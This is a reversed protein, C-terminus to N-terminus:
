AIIDSRPDVRTCTWATGPTAGPEFRVPCANDVPAEAAAIGLTHCLVRFTGSHAVVLPLGSIPIRELGALTRRTFEDLGEGRAPNAEWVRLRRPKGELEGWNREAIEAIVTAPLGIAAAVCKATDLARKLPSCFIADIGRDSLARAAAHAQQWGTETLAVDTAGTTLGLRNPETEGHRLFCFPAAFLALQPPRDIM